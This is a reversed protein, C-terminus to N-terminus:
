QATDLVHRLSSLLAELSREDAITIRLCNPLGYGGVPRLLVGRAALAAFIPQAPRAFDVLLFNGESAFVRLGLKTLARAWRSRQALTQDVVYALHETDAIAAVAAVQAYHNLNFTLRTRELLVALNPACLVYGIRLSALGYAKSFTRTVMLNPYDALLRAASIWDPRRVYEAYAEDIVVLTEPSVSDLFGRLTAADWGGGTPNNPNALYVLRAGQAAQALSAPDANLAREHDLPYVSALVLEAGCQIGAIAFVAFGHQPAVVRQGPGALTCAIQVLLEHSGNGVVIGAPDVDHLAALATILARASPDPYYPLRGAAVKLAECVAPAPGWLSENGSLEFVEGVTWRRRVEIADLGPDYPQLKAVGSPAAALFDLDSL